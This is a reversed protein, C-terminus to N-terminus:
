AVRQGRSPAHLEGFSGASAKPLALPVLMSCIFLRFGMPRIRRKAGWAMVTRRRYAQSALSLVRSRISGPRTRAVVALMGTPHGEHSSRLPAELVLRPRPVAGITRHGNVAAMPLDDDVERCALSTKTLSVLVRGNAESPNPRGIIVPLRGSEPRGLLLGRALQPLIGFWRPVLREAPEKRRSAARWAFAVALVALTSGLVGVRLASRTGTWHTRPKEQPAAVGPIDAATAGRSSQPGSGRDALPVGEGRVASM